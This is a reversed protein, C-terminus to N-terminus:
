QRGKLEKLKENLWDMATKRDEAALRRDAGIEKAIQSGEVRSAIRQIRQDYAALADASATSDQPVDDGFLTSKRPKPAEPGTTPEDGVEGEPIVQGSIRQYIQAFLKRDAKGLIADIGMGANVRVAIRLDIEQGDRLRQKTLELKDEHGNIKWAALVQVYSTEGRTEPVGKYIELDTLGPFTRVKREFGAKAGYFRGAIINFENGVPYFGRLLAGVVCDKVVEIGYPGKGDKANDRDTKFGLDTGQLTMIDSMMEPTIADRLKKMGAAVLFTRQMDTKADAISLQYGSAIEELKSIDTAHDLKVLEGM